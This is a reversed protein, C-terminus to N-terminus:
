NDLSNFMKVGKTQIYRYLIVNILVLIINISLMVVYGKFETFKVMIFIPVVVSVISIIMASLTASSQKVVSAETVWNLKPLKLNVILGAFSIFFAYNLPTIYLLIIRVLDLKLIISVTTSGILAAPILITLNVAVKSFLVTETKIPMTKAIWLNSGEFSVSCATTCSIAIFISVAMPAVENIIVSLNPIELIMGIKDFGMILSGFSLIILAVVGFATNLVYIASSFYRRLEKKYLAQFQSSVKIERIKYNSVVKKSTLATNINKFKSSIIVVFIIFIVTSIGVFLLLSTLDYKVVANSFYGTLPYIKNLNNLNSFNGLYSPNSTIYIIGTMLVFSLVINIINARKFRSSIFSIFFGIASALIIPILPVFLLAIFYFIYFEYAPSTKIAYVIGAPIMIVFTFFINFLNLFIVKSAIIYSTKIPLSMLFDFDKSGFLLGSVKYVTASLTIFTTFILMVAPYVEIANLIELLSAISFSSMYSYGIIAIFSVVFIFVLSLFKFFDKKNKSNLIKNIGLLDLLQLKLLLVINNM